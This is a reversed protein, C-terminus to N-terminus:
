ARYGGIIIAVLGALPLALVTAVAERWPNSSPMLTIAAALLLALFVASLTLIMGTM